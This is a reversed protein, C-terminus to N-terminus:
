SITPLLYRFHTARALPFMSWFRHDMDQHNLKSGYGPPPQSQQNPSKFGKTGQQVVLGAVWVVFEPSVSIHPRLDDPELGKTSPRVSGSSVKIAIQCRIKPSSSNPQFLPIRFFPGVFLSVKQLPDVAVLSLITAMKQPVFPFPQFSLRTTPITQRPTLSLTAFCFEIPQSPQPPPSTLMVSIKPSVDRRRLTKSVCEKM